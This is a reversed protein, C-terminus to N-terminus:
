RDRQGYADCERSRDGRQDDTPQLALVEFHDNADEGENQTAHGNEPGDAHQLAELRRSPCGAVSLRVCLDRGRRWRCKRSEDVRESCCSFPGAALRGAKRNWTSDAMSYEGLIAGALRQRSFAAAGQVRHWEILLFPRDPRRTGLFATVGSLARPHPAPVGRYALVTAIVVDLRGRPRRAHCRVTRVGRVVLRACVTHGV